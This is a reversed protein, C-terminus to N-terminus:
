PASSPAAQLAAEVAALRRLLDEREGRLAEVEARLAAVEDESEALMAHLGQVAALAVGATDVVSLTGERGGVQFAGQFDEAVPGLHRVSPEETRYRWRQIPVTQLRALVDRGDVPAFDTKVARASSFTVNTAQISGDVFFTAAGDADQRRHLILEAGGTGERSIKYTGDQDNQFFWLVGTQNNQIDFRAAGKNELKFLTQNTATTPNRYVHVPVQPDSTGVGLNDNKVYVVDQALVLGPMMLASVALAFFTRLYLSRINATSGM